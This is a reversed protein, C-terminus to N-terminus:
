VGSKPLQQLWSTAFSRAAGVADKGARYCLKWEGGKAENEADAFRTRGSGAAVVKADFDVDASVDLLERLRRAILVRSDAPRDKQWNAVDEKYKEAAEKRVAEAGALMNKQFEPDASREAMNREIEKISKEVVKRQEPPLSDMSKKMEAIQKNVEEQQRKLDDGANGSAAAEPKGEDRWKAYAEKFAATETYSKVWELATKTMAAREAGSAAKFANRTAPSWSPMGYVFASLTSEKAETEGVALGKLAEAGALLVALLCVSIVAFLRKKM